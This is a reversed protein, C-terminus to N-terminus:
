CTSLPIYPIPPFPNDVEEDGDVDVPTNLWQQFEQNDYQLNVESPKPPYPLIIHFFPPRQNSIPQPHETMVGEFADWAIEFTYYEIENDKDFIKGFLPEGNSGCKEGTLLDLFEQYAPNSEGAETNSFNLFIERIERARADNGWSIAILQSLKKSQKIIREASLSMHSPLVEKTKSLFTITQPTIM